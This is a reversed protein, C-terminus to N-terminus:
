RSKVIPRIGSCSVLSLLCLALLIGVVYLGLMLWTKRLQKKGPKADFVTRGSYGDILAQLRSSTVMYDSIDHQYTGGKIFEVVLTRDTKTKGPWGALPSLQTKNNIYCRAIKDWSLHKNGRTFYINERNLVIPADKRHRLLGWLFLAVFLVSVACLVLGTLRDGPIFAVLVGTLCFYVIVILVNLGGYIKTEKPLSQAQKM